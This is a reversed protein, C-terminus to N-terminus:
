RVQLFTEFNLGNTRVDIPGQPLEFPEDAYIIISIGWTDIHFSLNSSHPMFKRWIEEVIEHAVKKDITLPKKVLSM